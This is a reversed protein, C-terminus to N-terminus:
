KDESKIAPLELDESESKKTPESFLESITPRSSKLKGEDDVGDKDQEKLQFCFTIAISDGISKPMAGVGFDSRKVVFKGLFGCRPKGGPGSGVSLLDLPIEIQKTKGHMSLDGTVLFLTKKQGGVVERKVDIKTSEFDILPFRVVDFFDESRLHKDRTENNTDISDSNISFQFTAKEPQEVDLFVEGACDNFRGYVFSLGFHSVAFVVSSHANDLEWETPLKATADQANLTAALLALVLITNTLLRLPSM